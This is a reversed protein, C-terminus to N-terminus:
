PKTAWSAAADADAGKADVWPGLSGDALHERKWFPATTKLYDMIFGAGAFAAERHSAATAVLVIRGGPRVLGYRHIATAGLLPWRAAAETVVRGIEEEAMGPYHELELGSLRGAEDRCLGVFAVVAGADPRDRTLAEVERGPDFDGTQILITPTMITRIM